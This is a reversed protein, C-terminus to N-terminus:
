EFAAGFLRRTNQTMTEALEEENMGKIEAVAKLAVAVNAPENREAPVPGLVPSDSELLLCSCPLRSVLKQKQRSRIVSPPISFFYGAEVARLATSAKADFAHLLVKRAEHDLLLDVAHRGASRSHINLPLDLDASLQVFSRLIERQVERQEEDQIKWYDLGVEGIAVLRSSEARIFAEMKQAQGLDLHTPYLGAAPYVFGPYQDALELNRRADDITEAVAIVGRVGANRARALVADLDASFDPDALHAHVDVM